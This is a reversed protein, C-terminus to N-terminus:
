GSNVFTYDLSGDLNYRALAGTTTITDPDSKGAAIIKGDAQVAIAYVETADSSDIWTVVKGDSDFSADLSGDPNYRVLAWQKPDIDEVTGVGVVRGDPQLAMARCQEYGLPLIHTLAIGNTAFSSDLDGSQQATCAIATLATTLGFVSLKTM